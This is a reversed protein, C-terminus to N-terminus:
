ESVGPRAKVREVLVDLGPRVVEFDLIRVPWFRGRVSLELVRGGDPSDIPDLPLVSWWIVNEWQVRYGGFWWPSRRIGTGDVVIRLCLLGAGGYMGLATLLLCLLIALAVSEQDFLDNYLLAAVILAPLLFLASYGVAIRRPRFTIPEM